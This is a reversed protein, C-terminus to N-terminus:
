ERVPPAQEYPFDRLTDRARELKDKSYYPKPPKYIQGYSLYDPDILAAPDIGGMWLRTIVTRIYRATQVADSIDDRNWGGLYAKVQNDKGLVIYALSIKDQESDSLLDGGNKSIVKEALLRYLPLQLNTWSNRSFIRKGSEIKVPCAIGTKPDCHEEQVINNPDTNLLAGDPGSKPDALNGFLDLRTNNSDNGKIDSKDLTKYDFVFWRDLEPNYDIRDIRGILTFPEFEPPLYPANGPLSIEAGEKPGAEAYRIENGAKRWAAQWRAFSHLRREILKLQLLVTGASHHEKKYRRLKEGLKQSLYDKIKGEDASDRITKDQAFDCLIGHTITGFSFSNLETSDDDLARIGLKKELFYTYPSKIFSSFETAHMTEPLPGTMRFSPLAFPDPGATNKAAPVAPAPAGKALAKEAAQRLEEPFAPTDGFFRSVREAVVTENQDSLLLRSPLLPDKESSTRAFLIRLQKKERTNCYAQLIATLFYADRAYRRQNDEIELEHRVTDPLFPDSTETEPIIGENFGALIMGRNEDFRADLWGHIDVTEGKGPEDRVEGSSCRLIFDLAQDATLTIGPGDAADCLDDLAAYVIKLGEDIQNGTKEDFPSPEGSAPEPQPYFQALFDATRRPFDALPAPASHTQEAGPGTGGGSGAWLPALLAKAAELLKPLAPSDKGAKIGSDIRIEMPVYKNQYQDLDTLWDAKALGFDGRRIATEVDPHRIWEAFDEYSQSRLYDATCRLLLAVRNEAFPKGEGFHFPIGLRTLAGALYPRTEPDLLAISVPLHGAPEEEADALFLDTFRAAIEGERAPDATQVLVEDPIGIPEDKWKEPLISGFEDFDDKKSEPAQIFSVIQGENAALKKLIDKQLRNLDATGFLVITKDSRIESNQEARQRETQRECLGHQELLSRFEKQVNCLIQWRLVEQSIKKQAVNKRPSAFDLGESAVQHYLRSVLRAYQIEGAFDGKPFNPFLTDANEKRLAERWFLLEAARGAFPRSPIYLQEPFAGVTVAAPPFWEPDLSGDDIRNRVERALIEEFRRKALGSPFVFLFPSLDLKRSVIANLCNDALIRCVASRIFPLEWDIFIRDM